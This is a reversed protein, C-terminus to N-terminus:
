GSRALLRGQEILLCRDEVVDLGQATARGRAEANTIGLQMWISKLGQLHQLAEEVPRLVDESRRFINLMEVPEDIESLTAVVTQGFLTKGAHGPNVPIVRYGRRAMYNGVRNSAREPKISAGVMAITRTELIIQALKEDTPTM